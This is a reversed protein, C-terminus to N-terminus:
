KRNLAEQLEEKSFQSLVEQTVEKKLQKWNDIWKEMQSIKEDSTKYINYLNDPNTGLEKYVSHYESYSRGNFDSRVHKANKIKKLSRHIKESKNIKKSSM